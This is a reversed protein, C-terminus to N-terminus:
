HNRSVLPLYLYRVVDMELLLRYGTVNVCGFAITGDEPQIGLYYRGSATPTWSLRDSGAVNLYDGKSDYLEMRVQPGTIQASFTIPRATLVHVPSVEFWVFDKDAAYYQPDSDFSHDQAVGPQIPKAQEWTDDVEYADPCTHTIVGMPSLAASSTFGGTAPAGSPTSAMNFNRVVLPLYIRQLKREEISITYDTNCGKLGARNTVRLYYIGDSPATWVIRSSHDGAGKYDDNAALVDAGGGNFLALFTDARQGWSSTTITYVHNAQAAFVFWDVADDCFDQNLVDGVTITFPQTPSDNEECGDAPCTCPPAYPGAVDGFNVEYSRGPLVDVDVENPTTSSYGPPDIEVVTHVGGTAVYFTYEGDLDTTTTISGDLVIVVDPIGGENVDKVANTNLDEFVTGFIVAYM